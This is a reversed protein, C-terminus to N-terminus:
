LTTSWLGLGGRAGYIGYYIRRGDTVERTLLTYCFCHTVVLLFLVVTVAAGANAYTHSIIYILSLVNMNVAYNTLKYWSRGPLM